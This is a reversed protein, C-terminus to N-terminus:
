LGNNCFLDAFDLTPGSDPHMFVLAFGPACAATRTTHKIAAM